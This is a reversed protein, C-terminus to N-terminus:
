LGDSRKLGKVIEVETVKTGPYSNGSSLKKKVLYCKSSFVDEDEDDDNNAGYPARYELLGLSGDLGIWDM